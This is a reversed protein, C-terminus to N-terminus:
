LEEVARSTVEVFTSTDPEAVVSSSAFAPLASPFVVEPGKAVQELFGRRKTRAVM